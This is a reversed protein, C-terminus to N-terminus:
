SKKHRGNISLALAAISRSVKASPSELVVPVGNNNARNVTKADEPIYFAIKVGLAEEAKAAPVEKPQGYRNVVLLVRDRSIGLHGLYDLTRQTNRLATFDLRLVLLIVNAQRLVFAEQENYTHDLDVVVYPFLTRALSLTQRIGDLTIHALDKFTRPPALLHLGTAHRVLSRELMVRDMRAANQCLDALTYTPKLSLLDALDGTAPKLDVLLISKHEGAFVTAVNAAITSAGSGGSPGLLAILRGSEVQTTLSARLRGLAARLEAELDAEDV